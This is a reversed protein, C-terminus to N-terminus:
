YYNNNFTIKSILFSCLDESLYLEFLENIEMIFQFTHPSIIIHVYMCALQHLDFEFIRDAEPCLKLNNILSILEDEM